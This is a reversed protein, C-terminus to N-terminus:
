PLKEMRAAKQMNERGSVPDVGLDASISLESFFITSFAYENVYPRSSLAQNECTANSTGM